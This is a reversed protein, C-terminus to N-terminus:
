TQGIVTEDFDTIIIIGFDIYGPSGIYRSELSFKVKEPYEHLDDPCKPFQSVTVPFQSRVENYATYELYLSGSATIFNMLIYCEDPNLTAQLDFSDERYADRRDLYTPDYANKKELRYKQTPEYEVQGNQCLYYNVVQDDQRILKWGKIAVM